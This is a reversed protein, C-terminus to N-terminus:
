AKGIAIRLMNANKRYLGAMLQYDSNTKQAKFLQEELVVKNGGDAALEYVVKQERGEAGEEGKRGSLHNNDTTDQRVFGAGGRRSEMISSFDIEKADKPVYNPTDANSVNQSILIQRYNLWGMKGTIGKLVGINELM